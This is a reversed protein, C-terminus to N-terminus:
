NKTRTKKKKEEEEEEGPRQTKEDNQYLSYKGPRGPRM